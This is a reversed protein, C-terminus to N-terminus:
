ITLDQEEKLRLGVAFVEAMLFAILGLILTTANFVSGGSIIYDPIEIESITLWHYYFEIGVNTVYLTLFGTGIKRLRSVNIWEFIISKNVALILRIFCNIIMIFAGVLLLAVPITLGIEWWPRKKIVPTTVVINEKRAPLWSKSKLNYVSDTMIGYDQPILTLFHLNYETDKPHSGEEYGRMFSDKHEGFESSFYNVLHLVFAAAILLTILNLRRKM